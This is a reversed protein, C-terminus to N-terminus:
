DGKDSGIMGRAILLEVVRARRAALLDEKKPVPM